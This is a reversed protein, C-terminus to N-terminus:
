ASRLLWALNVLPASEVAAVMVSNTVAATNTSNVSIEEQVAAAVDPLVDGLDDRGVDAVADM